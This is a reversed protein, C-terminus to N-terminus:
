PQADFALPRVIALQLRPQDVERTRPVLGREVVVGRPEQDLQDTRLDAYQSRLELLQRDVDAVAARDSAVVDRPNHTSPPDPRDTLHDVCGRGAPAIKGQRVEVAQDGRALM